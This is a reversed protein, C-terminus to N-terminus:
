LVPTCVQGSVTKVHSDFRKSESWEKGESLGSVYCRFCCCCLFDNLYFKLKGLELQERTM